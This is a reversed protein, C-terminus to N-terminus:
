ITGIGARNAPSMLDRDAHAEDGNDRILCKHKKARLASRLWGSFTMIARM